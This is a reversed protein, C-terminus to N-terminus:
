LRWQEGDYWHCKRFRKKCSETPTFDVKNTIKKMSSESRAKVTGSVKDVEENNQMYEEFM